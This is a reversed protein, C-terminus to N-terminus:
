LLSTCLPCFLNVCPLVYRRETSGRSRRCRFLSRLCSQHADDHCHHECNTL